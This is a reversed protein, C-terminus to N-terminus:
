HEKLIDNIWSHVARYHPALTSIHYRENKPDYAVRQIHKNTYLLQDLQEGKIGKKTPADYPVNLVPINRHLEMFRAQEAVLHYYGNPDERQYAFPILNNLKKGLIAADLLERLLPGYKKPTTVILGHTAIKEKGEVEAVLREKAFNLPIAIGDAYFLDPLTEKWKKKDDKDLKKWADSIIRMFRATLKARDPHDPHDQKLFGYMHIELGNNFGGIQEKLFLDHPILYDKLLRQKIEYLPTVSRLKFGILVKSNKGDITAVKFAKQFEDRSMEKKEIFLHDTATLIALPKDPDVVSKMRKVLDHFITAVPITGSGPKVAVELRM